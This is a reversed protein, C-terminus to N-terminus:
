KTSENKMNGKKTNKWAIFEELHNQIYPAIDVYICRAIKQAQINSIIFNKEQM